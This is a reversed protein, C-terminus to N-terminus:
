PVRRAAWRVTMGAPCVPDLYSAVNTLEYEVDQLNGDGIEGSRLQAGGFASFKLLYTGPAPDPNCCGLAELDQCACWEDLLSSPDWGWLAVYTTGGDPANAQGIYWPKDDISIPDGSALHIVLGEVLCQANSDVVVQVCTDSSLDLPKASPISASFQLKVDLTPGNCSGWCSMSASTCVKLNWDSNTISSIKGAFTWTQGCLLGLPGKPTVDLVLTDQSFAPCSGPDGTTGVMGTAVTTDVAGTMGATATTDVVGTTLPDTTSASTASSSTAGVSGMTSPGDGSTTASSGATNGGNGGDTEKQFEPNDMRCSVGAVLAAAALLPSRLTCAM